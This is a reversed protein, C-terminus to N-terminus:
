SLYARLIRQFCAYLPTTYFSVYEATSALVWCVALVWGRWPDFRSDMGASWAGGEAVMKGGSWSGTFSNWRDAGHMRRFTPRGAMERWDMLM